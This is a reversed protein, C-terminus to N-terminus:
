SPERSRSQHIAMGQPPVEVNEERVVRISEPGDAPNSLCPLRKGRLVSLKMPPQASPDEDVTNSMWPLKKKQRVSAENIASESQPIGTGRQRRQPGSNTRVGYSRRGLSKKMSDSPKRLPKTGGILSVVVESLNRAHCHDEYKRLPVRRIDDRDRM